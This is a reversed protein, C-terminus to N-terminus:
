TSGRAWACSAYSPSTLAESRIVTVVGAPTVVACSGPKPPGRTVSSVPAALMSPAHVTCYSACSPALMNPRCPAFLVRTSGGYVTCTFSVAAGV